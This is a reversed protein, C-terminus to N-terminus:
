LIVLTSYQILSDSDIESLGQLTQHLFIFWFPNAGEGGRYVFYLIQTFHSQVATIKPFFTQRQGKYLIIGVDM